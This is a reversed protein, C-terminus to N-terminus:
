GLLATTIYPEGRNMTFSMALPEKLLDFADTLFDVRPICSTVDYSELGAPPDVDLERTCRV